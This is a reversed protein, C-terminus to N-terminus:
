ISVQSANDTGWIKLKPVINLLGAKFAYQYFTAVAQQYYTDFDYRITAFYKELLEPSFAYKKQAENLITEKNDQAYKKAKQMATAVQKVEAHHTNAFSEKMVWLAYIMPYGTMDKWLEGLDYVYADSNGLGERLADDGILLAADTALLMSSLEPAMDKYNVDVKFHIKLLIKLLAVSTASSTTLAVTKGSLEEIKYKSVLLISLVKGDAAISVDPLILCENANRAYEISSIPTVDLKGELFKKNLETPTGKIINSFYGFQKLPYLLPFCNLYDVIGLKLDQM